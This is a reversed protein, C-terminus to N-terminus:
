REAQPESTPVPTILGALGEAVSAYCRQALLKRDSEEYVPPHFRVTIRAPKLGLANTFHPLFTMPLYWAYFDRDAPLMAEGDYSQYAITVPQVPVAPQIAAAFLSPRFPRVHVGDTSTGEPFVFLNAPERLRAKLIPIQAATRRPDREIFVTKQLAALKGLVPWAAVDAKAVFLGPVLSGLVFVDIYSAHNAVFLTPQASSPEGEVRVQLNFIRCVGRHFRLAVWEAPGKGLLRAVLFAPPIVVLWLLLAPVAVCQRARSVRVRTPGRRSLDGIFRFSGM